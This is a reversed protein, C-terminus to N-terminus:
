QIAESIVNDPFLQPFIKELCCIVARHLGKIPNSNSGRKWCAKVNKTFVLVDLFSSQIFLIIATCAM